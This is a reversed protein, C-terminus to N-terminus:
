HAAAVPPHVQVPLRLFVVAHKDEYALHWRTDLRLLSALPHDRQWLIIRIDFEDIVKAWEPKGMEAKRYREVFSNPYIRSRGDFFVKYHPHLRYICYGGWNYSNFLPGSPRHSLLYETAGKAVDPLTPAPLPYLPASAVLAGAGVGLLWHFGGLWAAMSEFLRTPGNRELLRQWTPSAIAALHEAATPLLVIIFYAMDRVHILGETLLGFFLLLTIGNPKRPSVVLAFIIALIWALLIGGGIGHFNPSALESIQSASWDATGHWFLLAAERYLDLGHPNALPVLFCLVLIITKRLPQVPSPSELILVLAVLGLGVIFYIHLNAWLVMLPPLLWLVRHNRNRAWWLLLMIIAVMLFSFMQPRAMWPIWPILLGAGLMAALRVSGSRLWAHTALISVTTAVMLGDFVRLGWDPATTDILHFVIEALWSYAMWPTAGNQGFPDTIPLSANDLIWQGVRLHWWIDPDMQWPLRYGYNLGAAILYGILLATVTPAFLQRSQAM